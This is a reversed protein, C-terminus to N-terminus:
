RSSFMFRDLKSALSKADLSHAEALTALASLIDNPIDVYLSGKMTLAKKIQTEM